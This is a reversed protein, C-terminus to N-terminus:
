ENRIDKSNFGFFFKIMKRQFWNFKHQTFIHIDELYLETRVEKQIIESTYFGNDNM